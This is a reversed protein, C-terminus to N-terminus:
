KLEKYICQICANVPTGTSPIFLQCVLVDEYGFRQIKPPIKIVGKFVNRPNGGDSANIMVMEQHLVHRKNDSIGFANANPFGINGGPNKYVAMYFNPTSTTSTESAVVEVTLYIWSIKSGVSVEEKQALTPADVVRVLSQELKTNVPVATQIDVIHKISVVPRLALSRRFRAVM